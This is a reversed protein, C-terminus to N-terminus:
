DGIIVTKAPRLILNEKSFIEELTPNKPAGLLVIKLFSGIKRSKHRLLDNCFHGSLPPKRSLIQKPM